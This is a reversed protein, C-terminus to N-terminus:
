NNVHGLVNYSVSFSFGLDYIFLYCDSPENCAGLLSLPSSFFELNILLAQRLPREHMDNESYDTVTRYSIRTKATERVSFKPSDQTCKLNMCMLTM